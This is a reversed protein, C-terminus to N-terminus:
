MFTRHKLPIHGTENHSILILKKKYEMYEVITIGCQQIDMMTWTAPDINLNKCVLYRIINGHCILLFTKGMNEKQFKKSFYKKFAREAQKKDKLMEAETYKAKNEKASLGPVCECLISDNILKHRSKMEKIVINATEIARPMTSSIVGDFQYESLRKAAYKAQKRGLDTLKETPSRLYQGHRLLIIKLHIKGKLINTLIM